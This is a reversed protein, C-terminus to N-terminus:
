RPWTKSDREVVIYPIFYEDEPDALFEWVVPDLEQSVKEKGESSRIVELLQPILVQAAEKKAQEIEPKLDQMAALWMEMVKPISKEELRGAKVQTELYRQIIEKEPTKTAQARALIGSAFAEVEDNSGYYQIEEPDPTVIGLEEQGLHTVEHQTIELLEEEIESIFSDLAEGPNIEIYFQIEPIADDRLGAEGRVNWHTGSGEDAEQLAPAAGPPASKARASPPNRDYPGGGKKRKGKTSLRKAAHGKKMKKQFENENHDSTDVWSKHGHRTEESLFRRWNEMILKM